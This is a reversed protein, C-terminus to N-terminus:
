TFSLHGSLSDDSLNNPSGTAFWSKRRVNALAGRSHTSVIAVSYCVAARMVRLVVCTCVLM